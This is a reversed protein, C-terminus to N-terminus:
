FVKSEVFMENTFKNSALTVTTDIRHRNEKWTKDKHEIETITKKMNHFIKNSARLQKVLAGERVKM